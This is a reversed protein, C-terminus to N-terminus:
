HGQKLLRYALSRSLNLLFKAALEARAALIREFTREDLVLLRVTPTTAFVDATRKTDLLFAFEGFLEGTGFEAVKSGHAIVEVRGELVVFASRTGQGELILQQGQACELVQGRELFAALEAETFDQFAGFPERVRSLMGFTESWKDGEIDSVSVVPAEQSLLAAIRAALDPNGMAKPFYRLLPSRQARLYNVDRLNMVLPAMVGFGPQDFLPAYPRFGLSGYLNLLHPQCDCFVLDVDQGLLFLGSEVMMRLPLVSSRFKQRVLFRINIAMKARPLEPLFRAVDFGHEFHPPFPGADGVLMGMTGALEGDVTAHLLHSKAIAEDVVIRREHDADERMTGMEECFVEYALGYCEQREQENAIKIVIEAM